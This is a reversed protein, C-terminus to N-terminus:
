INEPFQEITFLLATKMHFTSLRNDVLPGLLEKRIMKTLIYARMQIITLDYMLLREITNTSMQWQLVSYEPALKITFISKFRDYTSDMNGPHVLFMGCHKAKNITHQKPWHGPKPRTFLVECNEPLSPCYLAITFEETNDSVSLTPGHQESNEPEDILGKAFLNVLDKNLVIIRYQGDVCIHGANDFFDVASAIENETEPDLIHQLFCCQSCCKEDKVVLAACIVGKAIETCQGQLIVNVFPSVYLM